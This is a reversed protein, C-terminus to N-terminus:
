IRLVSFSAHALRLFLVITELMFMISFMKMPIDFFYGIGSPTLLM